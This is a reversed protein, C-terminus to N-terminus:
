MFCGHLRVVKTKVIKNVVRVMLRKDVFHKMNGSSTRPVSTFFNLLVAEFLSFSTSRLHSLSQWRQQMTGSVVAAYNSLLTTAGGTSDFYITYLRHIQTINFPTSLSLLDVDLDLDVGFNLWM